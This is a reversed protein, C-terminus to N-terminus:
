LSTLHPVEAMAQLVAPDNINRGKLHHEIMQQRAASFPDTKQAHAMDTYMYMTMCIAPVAAYASLTSM